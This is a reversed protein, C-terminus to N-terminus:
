VRGCSKITKVIESLNKEIDKDEELATGTVVIDAGASVKEKAVTANKIGGGVVVPIDVEEKVKRIMENPVSEPAGSGAELYILSMGLYQAALAYGIATAYDRRKVLEADGVKGVTMGPEIILYGMSIPEIGFKKIIFAGRMQERIVYDLNKSNLLSMFFIADAYKSLFRAGSPFLIVPLSTKEKIAKVTDDVQKQSTITSGGVMIASSGAKEACSALYSAKEADQKDPDILAFHLPYKSLEEIIYAAVKM